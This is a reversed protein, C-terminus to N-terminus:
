YRSCELAWTLHQSCLLLIHSRQYPFCVGHLISDLLIGEMGPSSNTGRTLPVAPGRSFSVCHQLEFADELITYSGFGSHLPTLPLPLTPTWLLTEMPWHWCPLSKRKYPPSSGSEGKRAKQRSGHLSASSGHLEEGECSTGAELISPFSDRQSM